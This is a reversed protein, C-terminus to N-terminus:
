LGFIGPRFLFRPQNDRRRVQLVRGLQQCVADSSMSSHALGFGYSGDDEWTPLPPDMRFGVLISERYVIVPISLFLARNVPISLPLAEM